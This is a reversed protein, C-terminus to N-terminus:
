WLLETGPNSRTSNEQVQPLASPSRQPQEVSPTPPSPSVGPDPRAVVSNELGGALAVFTDIPIAMSSRTMIERTADSPRSGDEFIYPDGWLPYAHMGNIGVVQGQRNLVPGGSMGKAVANTYGIQYGGEVAKDSLLSVRGSLFSFGRPGSQESEFPFGAAFVEDERHLTSSAGVSAVAYNGASSRFQLLALDKGDFGVSRVVEAPYIQGDPTQIQYSGRGPTLVHENTVVTYVRGQKGITIGSGWTRGSIVKVTISQALQRLQETSLSGAPPQTAVAPAVIPDSTKSSLFQTPLAMLLSGVCVM